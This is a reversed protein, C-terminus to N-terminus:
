LFLSGQINEIVGLVRSFVEDVDGDGDLRHLIGQSRYHELVPSVKIHFTEIRKLVTSVLDDDRQFLHEGKDCQGVPCTVFPRKNRHFSHQCENCVQRGSLRELVVDNKLELLLAGDISENMKAMLNDLAIAQEVNRPFGDFLVGNLSEKVNKSLWDRVMKITIYDPVLEGKLIYKKALIGWETEQKLHSRFIDGTALRCIGIERFLLAAQTGKGSGPAGILIINKM